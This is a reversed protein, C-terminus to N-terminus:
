KLGDVIITLYGNELNYGEKKPLVFLQTHEKPLSEITLTYSGTQKKEAEVEQDNLVVRLIDPDTFEDNSDIFAIFVIASQGQTYLNRDSNVFVDLENAHIAATNKSTRSAMYQDDGEFQAYLAVNEDLIKGTVDQPAKEKETFETVWSLEYDGDIGTVGSAIVILEPKPIAKIINIEAGSIPEGDATTLVGVFTIEDGVLFDANCTMSNTCGNMEVSLVTAKQKAAFSSNSVALATSMVLMVGMLVVAIKNL